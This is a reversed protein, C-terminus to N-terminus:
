EGGAVGPELVAMAEARVTLGPVIGGAPDVSVQVVVEDGAIRVGVTAGAPAIRGAVADARDAEGRAVLRAVERAADTCRLQAMVAGTGAFAVAVVAVVACVAIAAEVTASGREGAYARGALRGIRVSRLAGMLRVGMPRVGM